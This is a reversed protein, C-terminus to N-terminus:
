IHKHTINQKATHHTTYTCFYAHVYRKQKVFEGPNDISPVWHWSPVLIVLHALNPDLILGDTLGAHRLVFFTGNGANRDKFYPAGDSAGIIPSNRRDGQMGPNDTVKERWGQSRQLSGTPTGSPCGDIHMHPVLDPRRYLDKLWFQMPMHYFYKRPTTTGPLYKSEGCIACITRRTQCYPFLTKLQENELDYYIVKGCPCMPIKKCTLLHHQQVFKMIRSHPGMAENSGAPATARLWSWVHNSSNLSPRYSSIWDLHMTIMLGITPPPLQEDDGEAHPEDQVLM